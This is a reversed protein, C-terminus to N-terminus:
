DAKREKALLTVVALLAKLLDPWNDQVFQKIKEWTEPIGQSRSEMDAQLRRVERITVRKPQGPQPSERLQENIARLLLITKM